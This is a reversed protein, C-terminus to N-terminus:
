NKRRPLRPLRPLNKWKFKAFGKVIDKVASAGRRFLTRKKDKYSIIEREIEEKADDIAAYLDEKESVARFEGPPISANIEARFIEGRKHHQTTKGVEVKILANESGEAIFKELMEVRKKAYDSISPTLALNTAKIKIQM